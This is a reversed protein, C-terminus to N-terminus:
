LARAYRVEQKMGHLQQTRECFSDLRAQEVETATEYLHVAERRTMRSKFYALSVRAQELAMCVATLDNRLMTENENFFKENEILSPNKIIFERFRGLTDDNMGLALAHLRGKAHAKHFLMCFEAYREPSEIRHKICFIFFKGIRKYAGSKAFKTANTTGYIRCMGQELYTNAFVDKATHCARNNFHKTVKEAQKYKKRCVPCRYINDEDDFIVQKNGYIDDVTNYQKM